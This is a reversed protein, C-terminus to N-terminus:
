KKGKDKNVEVVKNSKEPDENTLLKSYLSTIHYAWELHSIRVRM